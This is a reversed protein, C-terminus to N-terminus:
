RSVAHFSWWGEMRPTDAPQGVKALRAAWAQDLVTPDMVRTLSVPYVQHGIRIRGRPDALAAESWSKGQCSGCSLYLQVGSAMCNLNVSHPLWSQVQIQCLPVDNAFSWDGIPHTVERGLLYGGPINGCPCYFFYVAGATVGVVGLIAILIGSISGRNHGFQRAM